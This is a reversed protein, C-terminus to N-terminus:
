GGLTLRASASVGLGSSGGGGGPRQMTLHEYAIQMEEIAIVTEKANFAPAKLKV